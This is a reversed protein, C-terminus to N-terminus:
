GAKASALLCRGCRGTAARCEMRRPFRSTLRSGPARSTVPEFEPAGALGEDM